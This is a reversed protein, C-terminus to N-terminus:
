AFFYFKEVSGRGQRKRVITLAEVKALTVLHYSILSLNSGDDFINKLDTASLPAGIWLLAEIIAVKLPHVVRPVLEDWAFVLEDGEATVM